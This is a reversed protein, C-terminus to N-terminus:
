LPYATGTVTTLTFGSVNAVMVLIKMTGTTAEETTVEHDISFAEGFATGTYLTGTAVNHVTSTTPTGGSITGAVTLTEGENIAFGSVPSSLTIGLTGEPATYGLSLWATGTWTWLAHTEVVLFLRNTDRTGPSYARRDDDEMFYSKIGVPLDDGTVEALTGM